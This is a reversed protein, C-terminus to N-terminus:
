ITDRIVYKYHKNFKVVNEKDEYCNFKNVYNIANM